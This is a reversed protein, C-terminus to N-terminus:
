AVLDPNPVCVRTPFARTDMYAFHPTTRFSAYVTKRLMLSFSTTEQFAIMAPNESFPNISSANLNKQKINFSRICGFLAVMALIRGIQMDRSLFGATKTPVM